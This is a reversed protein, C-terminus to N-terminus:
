HLVFFPPLILPFLFMTYIGNFYMSYANKPKIDYKPKFTEDKWSAWAFGTRYNTRTGNAQCADWFADYEAKIGDYYGGDRRAFEYGANFVKEVNKTASELMHLVDNYNKEANVSM